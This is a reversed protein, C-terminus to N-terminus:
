CWCWSRVSSASAEFGSWASQNLSWWNRM